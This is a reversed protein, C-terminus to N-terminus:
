QRFHGAYQRSLGPLRRQLRASLAAGPPGQRCDALYAVLEERAAPPGHLLFHVWAWADRYEARGMETVDRKKELTELSPALGLQAAQRLDNLYPNGQAGKGRALEFYKALGEDLWLPVYALAAHLLAHTSEHRLDVEFQPSLYALVKGQGREKIYLARRYPVTPFRRALHRAYTEQSRFLYVEIPEGAAPINLMQVLDEQLGALEDLVASSEVLPFDARCVFHGVVRADAWGGTEAGLAAAPAMFTLLLPGLVSWVPSRIRRTPCGM